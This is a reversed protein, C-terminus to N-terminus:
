AEREQVAFALDALFQRTYEGTTFVYTVHGREGEEEVSRIVFLPEGSDYTIRTTTDPGPAVPPDGPSYPVISMPLGRRVSIDGQEMILLGDDIHVRFGEGNSSTPLRDMLQWGTGNLNEVLADDLGDSGDDNLNGMGMMVAKEPGFLHVDEMARAMEEATDELTDERHADLTIDYLSVVAGVLMLVGISIGAYIGMQDM